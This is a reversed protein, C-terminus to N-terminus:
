LFYPFKLYKPRVKSVSLIISRLVFEIYKAFSSSNMLWKFRDINIQSHTKLLCLMEM